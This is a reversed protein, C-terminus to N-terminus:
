NLECEKKKGCIDRLYKEPENLFVDTVGMAKLGELDMKGGTPKEPYLHGGFWARVSRDSFREPSIDM